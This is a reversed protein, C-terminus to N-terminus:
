NAQLTSPLLSSVNVTQRETRGNMRLVVTVPIQESTVGLRSSLAEPEATGGAPVAVPSPQVVFNGLVSNLELIEVDRAETGRNTLRLRIIVPPIPSGRPVLASMKQITEGFPHKVRDALEEEFVEALTPTDEEIKKQLKQSMEEGFGRSVTVRASVSGDFYDTEGQMAIPAAAITEADDQRSTSQRGIGSCGVIAVTLLGVVLPVELSNIRARIM